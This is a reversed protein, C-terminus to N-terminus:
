SRGAVGLLADRVAKAAAAIGPDSGVAAAELASARGRAEDIRAALMSRDDAMAHLAASAAAADKLRSECTELAIELRDLATNLRDVLCGSYSEATM